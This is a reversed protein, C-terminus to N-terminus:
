IWRTMGIGKCVAAALIEWHGLVAVMGADIGHRWGRGVDSEHWLRFNWLGALCGDRCAFSTLVCILFSSSSLAFSDIFRPQAISKSRNWLIISKGFWRTGRLTSFKASHSMRRSTHWGHSTEQLLQVEDATITQCGM